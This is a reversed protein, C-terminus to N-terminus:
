GRFLRSAIFNPMNLIASRNDTNYYFPGSKLCPKFSSDVNHNKKCLTIKRAKVHELAMSDTCYLDGSVTNYGLM